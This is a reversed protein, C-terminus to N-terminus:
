PQKYLNKYFDLEMFFEKLNKSGGWFYFSFEVNETEIHTNINKLCM